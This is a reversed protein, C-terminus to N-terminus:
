CFTFQKKLPSVQSEEGYVQPSTTEEYSSNHLAQNFSFIIGQRYTLIHCIQAFRIKQTKKAQKSNIWTKEM